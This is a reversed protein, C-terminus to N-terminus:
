AHRAEREVQRWGTEPDPRPPAAQAGVLRVFADHLTARTPEFLVLPAGSSVCAALLRRSSDPADLPARWRIRDPLVRERELNFGQGALAAALDFAGETELHAVRPAAALAESVAGEFALRGQAILVVRDCMREAHEMIHTSFLVTCGEEALGRIMTEVGAQNVPDLGSFPEDLIVLRPRHAIAALLQIKQAMGKSLTKIRKRAFGDLGHATLLELARRKADGMKMGKLRAFYILTSLPTMTRYLGREEPLYGVARLARRDLAAGGFLVQGSTPAVIGVIMRITSSKGAGNPGLIGCIKGAPATFSVEDVARHSGYNKTLRAVDLDMSM